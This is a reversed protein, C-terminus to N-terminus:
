QVICPFLMAYWWWVVCRLVDCRLVSCCLVAVRVVICSSTLDCLVVCSGAICRLVGVYELIDRMFMYCVVVGCCLIVCYLRSRVCCLM